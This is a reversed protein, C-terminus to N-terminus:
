DEAKFDSGLRTTERVSKIQVDDSRSIMKSVTPKLAGQHTPARFKWDAYNGKETQHHPVYVVKIGSSRVAAYNVHDWGHIALEFLANP